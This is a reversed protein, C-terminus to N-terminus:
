LGAPIIPAVPARPARAGSGSDHDDGLRLELPDVSSSCHFLSWLNRRSGAKGAGLYLRVQWAGLDRGYIDFCPDTHDHYWSETVAQILPLRIAEPAHTSESDM